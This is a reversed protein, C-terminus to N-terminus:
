APQRVKATTRGAFIDPVWTDDHTHHEILERLTIGTHLTSDDPVTSRWTGDRIREVMAKPAQDALFLVEQETV